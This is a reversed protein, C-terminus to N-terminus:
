KWLMCHVYLRTEKLPVHSQIGAEVHWSLAEKDLYGDLSWVSTGWEHERWGDQSRIHQLYFNEKHLLEVRYLKQNM